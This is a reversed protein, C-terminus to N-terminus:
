GPRCRADPAPKGPRWIIADGDAANCVIGRFEFPGYTVFGSRGHIGGPGPLSGLPTRLGPKLKLTYDSGAALPQTPAVLWTRRAAYAPKDADAPKVPQPNTILVMAGPVGPVPLLLPSRREKNFPQAQAPTAATAGDRAFVLSQEIAAKTVPLNFQLQYQPRVPSLWQQFYSWVVQPLLTTFTQTLPKALRSGDLAALGTGVHITYRTAPRFQREGSLRCALEDNNLWRWECDLAPEISVPIDTPTRAMDGLAVMPRDFQFVIEKGQPVEAGSPTIRLIQLHDAARAQIAFGGALMALAAALAFRAPIATRM